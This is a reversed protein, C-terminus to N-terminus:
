HYPSWRSRCEKGVRREESRGKLILEVTDTLYYEGQANDNRLSDLAGLLASKEFMYMGSNIECIFSEQPTTDKQEVIKLLNGSGDKVIRGYGFPNDLEASVVTVSNGANKHHEYIENISESGILPTDGCLVLVTSSSGIQDRVQMVAHGTGM